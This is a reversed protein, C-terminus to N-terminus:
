AEYKNGYGGTDLTQSGVRSNIVYELLARQVEGRVCSQVTRIDCAGDCEM